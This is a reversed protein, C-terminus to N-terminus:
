EAIGKLLAEEEAALEALAEGAEGAMAKALVATNLKVLQVKGGKDQFVTIRCPLPPAKGQSAKALRDNAEKPCTHVVSMPQYGKVGAAAMEAAVDQVRELKWGRREATAKIANVTEAFGLRSARLDFMAAMMQMQRMMAQQMQAANAAPAPSQAVAPPSLLTICLVLIARKM